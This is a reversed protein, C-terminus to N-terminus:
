NNVIINFLQVNDLFTLYKTLLFVLTYETTTLYQMIIFNKNWSTGLVYKAAIWFPSKKMSLFGWIRSLLDFNELRRIASNEWLPRVRKMIAKKINM